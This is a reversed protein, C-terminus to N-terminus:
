NGCIDELPISFTFKSGRGPESELDIDGNHLEVFSKVLALGLGTGNNDRSLPSNVQTFPEFVKQQQEYPIGIGTDSVSIRISGDILMSDVNVSGHEPTFKIANSLLNLLIQKLKNSDAQLVTDHSFTNFQLKINKCSAMPYVMNEVESFVNNLSVEELNLEMKGSEIKSIDLLENILKLLHMGSKEIYTLYHRQEDNIKGADGRILAESFGIVSTLPTRLEHSMSALFKSKIENAEEAALMAKMIAQEAIKRETIDNFTILILSPDNEDGLIGFHSNVEKRGRMQVHIIEDDKGKLRLELTKDELKKFFAKFRSVFISRDEEYIYRLLPEDMNDNRPFNFIECLLQNAKRILGNEDVLAYGVPARHFLHFYSERQLVLEEQARKLEENQMELEIQHVRLNHLIEQIEEDSLKGIDEYTEEKGPKLADKKLDKFIEEM